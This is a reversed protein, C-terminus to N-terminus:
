NGSLINFPLAVASEVVEGTGEAIDRVGEGPQLTIIEGTGELVKGTGHAVGKVANGTPTIVPIYNGDEDVTYSTAQEDAVVNENEMAQVGCVGLILGAALVLALKKM